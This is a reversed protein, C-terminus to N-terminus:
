KSLLPEVMEYLGINAGKIFAIKDESFEPGVQPIAAVLTPLEVVLSAVIVPIDTGPQFGDAMAAKVAMVLKGMHALLDYGSKEIEVSIQQKM